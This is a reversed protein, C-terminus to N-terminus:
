KSGPIKITQRTSFKIEFKNANTFEIFSVLNNFDTQFKQVQAPNQEIIYSGRSQGGSIIYNRVSHLFMYQTILIDHNEFVDSLYSVDDIKNENIFNDLDYLCDAVALTINELSRLAACSESFRKRYKKRTEYINESAANKKANRLLHMAANIYKSVEASSVSGFDQLDMAKINKYDSTIKEAARLATVQTAALPAGDFLHTGFVAAAEGVPFFRRINSESYIDCDLGGNLHYASINLEIIEKSLDTGNDSFLKYLDYDIDILNKCPEGRCDMFVRRNKIKESYLVNYEPPIEIRNNGDSDVSYCRPACRLLDEDIKWKFKNEDNQAIQSIYSLSFATETLNKGKVGALFAAGLSCTMNEPYLHSDNEYIGAPGGVAYIINSARFLVYGFENGSPEEPEPQSNNIDAEYKNIRSTKINSGAGTNTLREQIKAFINKNANKIRTRLNYEQIKEGYIRQADKDVALLGAASENSKIISVVRFRNFVPIGSNLIDREAAEAIKRATFFGASSTRAPSGYESFGGYINKPFDVGLGTLRYFSRSSLSAMTLAIDGDMSFGGYFDGAMDGISDTEGSLKYYNRSGASNKSVGYKMSETIVAINRYDAALLASAANLGAAGSGVIVADFTYVPVNVGNFVLNLPIIENDSYIM